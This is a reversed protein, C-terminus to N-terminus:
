LPELHGHLQVTCFGQPAPPSTFGLAKIHPTTSTDISVVSSLLRTEDKNTKVSPVASFYSTINDTVNGILLYADSMPVIDSTQTFFGTVFDIKFNAGEPVEESALDFYVYPQYQVSQCVYKMTFPMSEIGGSDAPKGAMASGSGLSALGILAVGVTRHVSRIIINKSIVKMVIEKITSNVTIRNSVTQVHDVQACLYLRRM